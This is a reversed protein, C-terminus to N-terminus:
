EVPNQVYGFNNVLVGPLQMAFRPDHPLLVGTLEGAKRVISINAGEENLRKIDMWRLGRCLLEKRREMLILQTAEEKSAATFPVFTGSQWRTILLENLDDMAKQLENARAYCEARILFMEDTCIGTMTTSGNYSGKFYNYNGAPRFWATKRLDNAHFTTVLTTDIFVNGLRGISGVPEIAQKYYIVEKGFRQPNLPYYGAVDVEGANNFDLLGKQNSLYNNSHEFAKEYKRMSLYVRALMGYAALRSPRTPHNSRMPLYKVAEELDTIIQQYTDEVSSRKLEEFADANLDLVAGPDQKATSENYAKSFQWAITCLAFARTFHCAGKAYDFDAQSASGKGAELTELGLNAHFIASYPTQWFSVHLYSGDINPIWKLYYQKNLPNMALYQASTCFFEDSGIQISGCQIPNDIMLMVDQVSRVEKQTADGPKDLYKNCSSGILLFSLIIASKM